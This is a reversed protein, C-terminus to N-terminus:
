GLLLAKGGDCVDFHFLSSVGTMDSENLGRSSYGVLSRRGHSKEPLFVPTPQWKRRWPIRGVSDLDGANCASAKVESGGPFGAGYCMSSMFVGRGPFQDQLSCLVTGFFGTREQIHPSGQPFGPPETFFRGAFAPSAPEIRPDPLVGPSSFPLGSWYEQRFFDM